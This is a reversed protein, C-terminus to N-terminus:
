KLLLMKKIFRNSDTKLVYYYVGSSVKKSQNDTGNWDFSYKKDTKTEGKFLTKILEGKLNFIELKAIGSNDAVFSITTNPNFPNPYNQYLTAINNNPPTNQNDDSVMNVSRPGFLQTRGSFDVSEIWYFYERDQQPINKDEFQYNQLESTTGAGPIININVKKSNDFADDFARYVNWGLNNTESLTQWLIMAGNSIQTATFSSLTIALPPDDDEGPVGDGNDTWSTQNGGDSTSTREYNKSADWAWPSNHDNFNDVTGAKASLYLEIIDLGGDLPFLSNGEGDKPAEFSPRAEPYSMSFTGFDQVILVYSNPMVKGFLNMTATPSSAGDNYYRIQVNSLDIEWIRRNYIEIYGDMPNPMVNDGSIENIVLDLPGPAVPDPNTSVDCEPVVGDTKYVYGHCSSRTYPYVKFHYTTTGNYQTFYTAYHDDASNYDLVACAEGDSLDNDAVPAVGNVPPTIAGTSAKVVFGEAVTDGSDDDEWTIEIQDSELIEQGSLNTAHNTPETRYGTVLIRKIRYYEGYDNAKINMKIFLTDGCVDTQEARDNTADVIGYIQGNGGHFSTWASDDIKYYSKVYDNNDLSSGSLSHEFYITIHVMYFDSVDIKESIFEFEGTGSRRAELSYVYTSTNIVTYFHDFDTTGNINVQWKDVPYDGVNAVSGGSEVIGTPRVYSSFTEEWIVDAVLSITFFILYLVLYKKM